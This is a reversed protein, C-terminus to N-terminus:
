KAPKTKENGGDVARLKPSKPHKLIANPSSCIRELLEAAAQRNICQSPERGKTTSSFKPITPRKLIEEVKM